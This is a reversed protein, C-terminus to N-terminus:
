YLVVTGTEQNGAGGNAGHYTFLVGPQAQLGIRYAGFIANNGGILANNMMVPFVAWTDQNNAAVGAVPGPPQVTNNAAASAAAVQTTFFLHLTNAQTPTKVPNQLYSWNTVGTGGDLGHQDVLAPSGRSGAAVICGFVAWVNHGPNTFTTSGDTGNWVQYWTNSQGNSYAKDDLKTASANAVTVGNDALVFMVLVDGATMLATPLSVVGGSAVLGIFGASQNARRLTPGTYGAPLYPDAVSGVVSLPSSPTGSGSLTSDHSVATLFGGATACQVVRPCFEAWADNGGAIRPAGSRAVLGDALVYLGSAARRALRRSFAPLTYKM